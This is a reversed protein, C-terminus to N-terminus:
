EGKLRELEWEGAGSIKWVCAMILLATIQSIISKSCADMVQGSASEVAKKEWTNLNKGRWYINLFVLKSCM